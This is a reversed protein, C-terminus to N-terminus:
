RGQPLIENDNAIRDPALRSVRNVAQRTWGEMVYRDIRYRSLSLQLRRGERTRLIVITHRAGERVSVINAGMETAKRRLVALNPNADM